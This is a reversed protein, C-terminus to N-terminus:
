VCLYWILWVSGLGLAGLACVELKCMKQRGQEGHYWALVAAPLIGLGLALTIARQLGIPWAWIERLADTLQLAMWAVALYAIMWQALKRQRLRRLTALPQPVSAREAVSENQEISYRIPQKPGAVEFSGPRSQSAGRRWVVRRARRTDM